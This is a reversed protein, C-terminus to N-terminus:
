HQKKRRVAKNKITVRTGASTGARPTLTLEANLGKHHVALLARATASLKPALATTAGSGIRYSGSALRVTKRKIVITIQLTGACGGTGGICRLRTAVRGGSATLRKALLKITGPTPAPTSSAGPTPAPTSSQGPTSAPTSSAPTAPVAVSASVTVPAGAIAAATVTCSVTTGADASTLEYSTGTQGSIPSGNREWGYAITLGEGTFIGAASCSLTQGVAPIGSLTPRGTAAAAQVQVAGIDCTSGRPEGRQDTTLPVAPTQSPDLCSGGARLLPSGSQPFMTQTPGGNDALAGLRASSEFLDQAGPSLGCASHGSSPAASTELNHGRDVINLGLAAQISCNGTTGTVDATAVGDAFVTNNLTIDETTSGSYLNGGMGATNGDLTDSYFLLIDPGTAARIGGGNSGAAQGAPGLDSLGGAGGAATNGTVTSDVLELTGQADIGGGYGSGGNGGSHAISDGGSGGTVSNGSITSDVITASANLSLGGGFAAGGATGAYSLGDSGGDGGVAANDTITSDTLTLVANTTLAAIGGGAVGGGATPSSGASGPGATASNGIVAVHDLTTPGDTSIGGGWAAQGNTGGPSVNGGTIELEKILFPGGTQYDLVRGQGTQRIVTQTPGAGVITLAYGTSCTPSNIAVEGVDLTYTGAGLQVTSCSSQAYNVAARLTTCVTGTCSGTGDGFSSVTYTTPTASAQGACALLALFTAAIGAVLRGRIPGM